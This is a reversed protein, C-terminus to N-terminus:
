RYQGPGGALCWSDVDAARFRRANRSFLISPPAKGCRVLASFHTESYGARIAAQQASLWVQDPRAVRVDRPPRKPRELVIDSM